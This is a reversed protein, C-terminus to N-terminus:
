YQGGVEKGDVGGDEAKELNVSPCARKVPAVSRDASSDLYYREYKTNLLIGGLRPPNALVGDFPIWDSPNDPILDALCGYSVMTSGAVKGGEEEENRIQQLVHEKFRFMWPAGSDFALGLRDAQYRLKILGVRRKMGALGSKVPEDGDGMGTSRACTFYNKALVGNLNMMDNGIFPADLSFRSRLFIGLFHDPDDNDDEITEDPFFPLDENRDDDDDGLLDIEKGKRANKWQDCVISKDYKMRKSYNFRGMDSDDIDNDVPTTARWLKATSDIGYTIFYPLSPHPQIGNCTSNDAKIFSVVASSKKEYIWAHGSDSGTCIYEDNPGAYKAMKLFTLRNLHGGYAALESVPKDRAMGVDIDDMTPHDKGGFIPFTYVHDSEYSVLLEREDRSLDIGSVAVSSSRRKLDRPRYKQVARSSAPGGGATMRLDYLGVDVGSGGAFVYASTELHTGDSLGEVGGGGASGRRWPFCAKCTGALEPVLSGRRQSRPPLRLDFHLLGRESCVLGVHASLFHHSFCMLSNRFRFSDSEGNETTQYEPSIVVASSENGANSSSSVISNSRNRPSSSFSSSHVELDLLRLYGDAACTAVKGLAHPVPSAHFVNGRHGTSLTLLPHVIGPLFRRHTGVTSSSSYYGEGHNKWADVLEACARMPVRPSSFPTITSSGGPLPSTSGMSQSVDWFKVLHDDGSTLLQTPYETPALPQATLSGGNGCGYRSKPRPPTSYMDHNNSSYSSSSSLFGEEDGYCYIDRPRADEHSVTSIRWGCDLWSVTNICGGHKMSRAVPVEVGKENASPGALAEAAVRRERRRHLSELHDIYHEVQRINYRDRATLEADDDSDDGSSRNNNGVNDSGDDDGDVGDDGNEDEEDSGADGNLADLISQQRREWRSRRSSREQEQEHDQDEGDPSQTIQAGLHRAIETEAERRASPSDIIDNVVHGGDVGRAAVPRGSKDFHLESEEGANSPLLETPNGEGNEQSDDDEGSVEEEKEEDDSESDHLGMVAAADDRFQMENADADDDDDEEHESSSNDDDANPLLVCSAPTGPGIALTMNQLRRPNWAGAGALGDNTVVVGESLWGVRGGYGSRGQLGIRERAGLLSLIRCSRTAHHYHRGDVPVVAAHSPSACDDDVSDCGRLSIWPVVATDRHSWANPM